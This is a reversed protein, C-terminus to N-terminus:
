STAHQGRGSNVHLTTLTVPLLSKHGILSQPVKLYVVNLGSGKEPVVFFVIEYCKTRVAIASKV